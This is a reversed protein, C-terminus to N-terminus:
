LHLTLTKRQRYLLVSWQQSVVLVRGMAVEALLHLDICVVSTCCEHLCFNICQLPTRTWRCCFNVACSLKRKLCSVVLLSLAGSLAQPLMIIKKHFHRNALCSCHPRGWSCVGALNCGAPNCRLSLGPLCCPHHARCKHGGQLLLLLM